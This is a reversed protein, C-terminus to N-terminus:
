IRTKHAVQLQFGGHATVQRATTHSRTDHTHTAHIHRKHMTPAGPLWGPVIGPGTRPPPAPAAEYM